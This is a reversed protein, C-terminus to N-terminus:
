LLKSLVDPDAPKTLVYDFGSALATMHIAADNGYGTVAILRVVATEPNRRLARAVRFGDFGPMGIDSLVVDPRSETAARVGGLGDYMVRVSHGQLELLMKLTDATDKNDEIILINKGMSSEHHTQEPLDTFQTVMM